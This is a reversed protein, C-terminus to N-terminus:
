VSFSWHDLWIRGGFSLGAGCNRCIAAVKGTKGLVHAGHDSRRASSFGLEGFLRGGGFGMTCPALPVSRAIKQEPPFVNLAKRHPVRNQKPM